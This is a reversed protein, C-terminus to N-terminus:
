ARPSRAATLARIMTEFCAGRVDQVVVRDGPGRSSELDRILDVLQQSTGEPMSRSRDAIVLVDGPAATPLAKSVVDPPVTSQARASDGHLSAAVLCLAVLTKTLKTSLLRLGTLPPPAKM